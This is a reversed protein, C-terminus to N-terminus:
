KLLPEADRVECWHDFLPPDVESVEGSRRQTASLESVHELHKLILPRSARMAMLRSMGLQTGTGRM